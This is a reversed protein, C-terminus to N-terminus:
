WRVAVDIRRARPECAPPAIPILLAYGPDEHVLTLQLADEAFARLAASARRKDVIVYKVCSRALFRDRSARARELLDDSIPGAQESLTHLAQLMPARRNERKHWTSVRSLYGGILPRAHRTQFFQSSANFDGLSSTGDRIGTPLELLRGQENDASTILRYVDPTEASYLTRPIPLVEVALLVAAAGAFVRRGRAGEALWAELAFAALISFGLVAVIALRAPSRAMEVIPVYRLIAWPGPVFTNIGGVHIFPGLSLLVFVATFAVWMRPLRRRWAMLVTGVLAVLSVSAVYEPFADPAGPLLWGRTWPGFWPHSPNPVAYALLDVGRPSSRWYTSTDPLRGQAYTLALGVLIPSLLTLTVAVALTGRKPLLRLQHGHDDVRVTLRWTLLGRLGALVTLLLMPTYLTALGVRIPGVSVSTTGTLIRWCVLGAIMLCVADLAGRPRSAIGVRKDVSVALFRWALVFVGMLLCYVGYYADSYTATAVVLGVLAANGYTPRDLTRMLAWLFIPLPAATILSFHATEKATVVPSAIFLAGAVWASCARLGLRRALAYVGLGSLVLCALLLLNFAGIIGISSVLPTAVLGALPTYNHLSFDAGNTYAFVHETSFPLHRHIVLEHQFIWLNWVYVGTDGTPDGLLRSTLYQPLPWTLACALASYSFTAM